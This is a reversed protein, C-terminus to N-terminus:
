PHPQATPSPPAIRPERSKPWVQRRCTGNTVVSGSSPTARRSMVCAIATPVFLAVSLVNAEASLASQCSVGGVTGNAFKVATAHDSELARGPEAQATPLRGSEESGTAIYELSPPL